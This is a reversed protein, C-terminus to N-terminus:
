SKSILSSSKDLISYLPKSLNNHPHIVKANNYYRSSTQKSHIEQKFQRNDLYDHRFKNSNISVEVSKNFNNLNQFKFIIEHFSAIQAIIVTSVIILATKKLM